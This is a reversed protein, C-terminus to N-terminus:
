TSITTGFLRRRSDMAPFTRSGVSGQANISFVSGQLKLGLSDIVLDVSDGVQVFPLSEEPVMIQADIRGTSVIEAVPSGVSVYEGVEANKTVVSGDFPAYIELRTNREQAEELLVDLQGLSAELSEITARKLEVESSSVANSRLLEDFRGMEKKEFALTAKKETIQSLIKSEDLKTWTSDIRALLTQGGVVKTGEDVPLEIIKGAVETAITARRVAILDGVLTRVPVISKREITGVRVLQAQPGSPKGKTKSNAPGSETPAGASQGFAWYSAVGGLLFTTLSVSLLTTM